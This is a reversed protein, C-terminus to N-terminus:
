LRLQLIYDSKHKIVKPTILTSKKFIEAGQVIRHGIADVESINKLVGLKKDTLLKIVIQVAEGFTPIVRDEQFVKGKAKYVVSEEGSKEGIRTLSGKAMLENKSTDILQFKMSSSGANVVLIKM